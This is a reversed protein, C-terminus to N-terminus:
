SRNKSHPLIWCKTGILACARLSFKHSLVSAFSLFYLLKGISFLMVRKANLPFNPFGETWFPTFNTPGLNIRKLESCQNTTSYSSVARLWFQPHYLWWFPTSTRASYPQGSSHAASSHSHFIDVNLGFCHVLRSILLTKMVYHGSHKCISLIGVMQQVPM